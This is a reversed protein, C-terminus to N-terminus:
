PSALAFLGRSNKDRKKWATCPATINYEEEVVVTLRPARLRDCYPSTEKKIVIDQAAAGMPAYIIM